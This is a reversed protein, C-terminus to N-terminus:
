DPRPIGMEFPQKWFFAAGHFKLTVETDGEDHLIRFGTLTGKGDFDYRENEWGSYMRKRQCILGRLVLDKEEHVAKVDIYVAPRQVVKKTGDARTYAPEVSQEEMRTIGLIRVSGDKWSIDENLKEHHEPVQITVPESEERDLYTIGPFHMEFSTDQEEVPVDFLCRIRKGYAVMESLRYLGLNDWFPHVELPKIVYEKGNGTITPMEIEQASFGYMPVITQYKEESYVYWSILLGEKEKKGMSIISIGDHTDMDGNEKAALEELTSYKPVPKVAFGVPEELDLIRVAYGSLHEEFDQAAPLEFIAEILYRTKGYSEPYAPLNVYRSDKPKIGEKPLGPGTLFIGEGANWLENQYRGEFIVESNDDLIVSVILERNQCIASSITITKEKEEIDTEVVSDLEYVPYESQIIGYNRAFQYPLAISAKWEPAPTETGAEQGMQSTQCGSVLLSLLGAIMFVSGISKRM